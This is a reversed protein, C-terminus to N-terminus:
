KFGGIRRSYQLVKRCQFDDLGKSVWALWARSETSGGGYHGTWHNVTPNSTPSPALGQIHAVFGAAALKSKQYDAVRNPGAFVPM